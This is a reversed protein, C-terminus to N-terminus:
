IESYPIQPLKYYLSLRKAYDATAKENSGYPICGDQYMQIHDLTGREDCSIRKAMSATLSPLEFHTEPHHEYDCWRTLDIRGIPKHERNLAIYRAPNSKPIKVVRYICSTRRGSQMCNKYGYKHEREREQNRKIHKAWIAKDRETKLEISETYM